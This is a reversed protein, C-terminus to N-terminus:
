SLKKFFTLTTFGEFFDRAPKTSETETPHYPYIESGDNVGVNPDYRSRWKGLSLIGTRASDTYCMLQYVNGEGISALAVQNADGFAQSAYSSTSTNADNPHIYLIVEGSGVVTHRDIMPTTAPYIEKVECTGDGLDGFVVSAFYSLDGRPKYNLTDYGEEAFLISSNTWAYPYGKGYTGYDFAVRIDTDSKASEYAALINKELQDALADVLSQQKVYYDVPIEPEDVSYAGSANMEEAIYRLRDLRATDARAFVGCIGGYPVLAHNGVTQTTGNYCRICDVYVDTGANYPEELDPIHRSGISVYNPTALRGQNNENFSFQALKTPNGDLYIKVSAAGDYVLTYRHFKGDGVPLNVFRSLPNNANEVDNVDGQIFTIAGNTSAAACDAEAFSLIFGRANPHTNSVANVVFGVRALKAYTENNYKANLLKPLCDFKASFDITFGKETEFEPHTKDKANFSLFVASEESHYNYVRAAGIDEGLSIYLREDGSSASGGDIKYTYRGLVGTAAEDEALSGGNFEVAFSAKPLFESTYNEPMAYGATAASVRRENLRCADESSGGSVPANRLENVEAILTGLTIYDPDDESVVGMNAAEEVMINFKTTTLRAGDEAIISIDCELTGDIELMEEELPVIVEGDDAVSGYFSMTKKDPREVNITVKSTDKVFYDKGDNMIKVKLERSKRDGQKAVLMESSNLRIVDVSLNKTIKAM